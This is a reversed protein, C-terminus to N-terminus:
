GKSFQPFTPSSGQLTHTAAEPVASDSGPPCRVPGKRRTWTGLSASYEQLYTGLHSNITWKIKEQRGLTLM